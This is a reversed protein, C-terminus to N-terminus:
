QAACNIEWPIGFRDTLMGYCPSWFTKQIPMTIEGGEALSEFIGKTVQEDEMQLLLQFGKPTEYQEPLIDAGAIELNNTALSAHVVKDQWDAPIHQSAPSERYTFVEMSGGLLNKYFEFAEQCQGTFHLHVGIRM